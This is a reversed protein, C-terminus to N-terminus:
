NRCVGRNRNKNKCARAFCQQSREAFDEDLDGELDQLIFALCVIQYLSKVQVAKLSLGLVHERVTEEMDDAFSRWTGQVACSSPGCLLHIRRDDDNEDKAEM